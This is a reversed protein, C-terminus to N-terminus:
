RKGDKEYREMEKQELHASTQKRKSKAKNKKTKSKTPKDDATLTDANFAKVQKEFAELKQQEAKDLPEAQRDAVLHITLLVAATVAVVAILGIREVKTLRDM